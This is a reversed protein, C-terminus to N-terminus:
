LGSIQYQMTGIQKAYGGVKVKSIQSDSVEVSATLKSSCSMARGQEFIYDVCQTQELQVGKVNKQVLYCALAGTASGTASEESIGVAPAFNRCNATLEEQPSLEFLHLGVIRHRRSFEAIKADNPTIRDLMGFQVAVLLDALGTSIVEIPLQTSSLVEVDVDLLEAIEQYEFEGLKEPLTQEMVVLGDDGVNVPLLGAKTRQVYQGSAILGQQHLVSFAALTAHGCFDVEETTTYFSVEFDANADSSVFATESYGVAQAISLKQKPTLDDANLVVGALNGGNGNKTFSSVQFVELMM